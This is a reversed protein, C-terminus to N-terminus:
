KGVNGIENTIRSELAKVREHLEKLQNRVGIQQANAGEGTTRFTLSDLETKLRDVRSAIDNIGAKTEARMKGVEASLAAIANLYPKERLREGWYFGALAMFVAFMLFWAPPDVLFGIM